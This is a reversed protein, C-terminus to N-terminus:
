TEIKQKESKEKNNTPHSETLKGKTETTQPSSSRHIFSFYHKNFDLFRFTFFEQV